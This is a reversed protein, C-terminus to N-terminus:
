AKAALLKELKSVRVELLDYRSPISFNLYDGNKEFVLNVEDGDKWTKATEIDKKGFVMDCYMSAKGEETEIFYMTYPKGSKSIGTTNSLGKIVVKKIM